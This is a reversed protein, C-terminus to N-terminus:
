QPENGAGGRPARVLLGSGGPLGRHRDGHLGVIVEGAEVVAAGDADLERKRAADLVVAVTVRQPRHVTQICGPRLMATAMLVILGARLGLLTRSKGNSLPRHSPRVAFLALGVGISLVVVWWPAVPELTWDNM